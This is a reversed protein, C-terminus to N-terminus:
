ADPARRVYSTWNPWWTGDGRTLGRTRDVCLQAFCVDACAGADATPGVGYCLEDGGSGEGAEIYRGDPLQIPVAAPPYWLAAPDRAAFAEATAYFGVGAGGVVIVAPLTQFEYPEGDESWALFAVRSGDVGQVETVTVTMTVPQDTAPAGDVLEDFVYSAGPQLVTAWLEAASPGHLMVVGAGDETAPTVPHARDQARGGGGTSCAGLAATAALATTAGRLSSRTM